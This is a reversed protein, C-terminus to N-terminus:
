WRVWFGSDNHIKLTENILNNEPYEVMERPDSFFVVPRQTKNEKTKTVLM